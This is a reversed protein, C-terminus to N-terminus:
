FKHLIGLYGEVKEEVRRGRGGGREGGRERGRGREGGRGRGGERVKGLVYSWVELAENKKGAADLVQAFDRFLGEVKEGVRRGRGGGRERGGGRGGERVKGLVYSWVELAENKKGAADLVQAFDRFLGEM